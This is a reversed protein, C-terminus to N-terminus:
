DEDGKYILDLIEKFNPNDIVAKADERNNFIPILGRVVISSTYDQIFYELNRKDFNICYIKKEEKSNKRNYYEAINLLQNLAFLRELQKRNTTNNKDLKAGSSSIWFIKGKIDSTFMNKSFLEEAVDEYTLEKKIPKFKICEFTSNEKDMEYGEPINIKIEKTEMNNNIKPKNIVQDFMELTYNYSDEIISYVKLTANYQKITVGGCHEMGEVFYQRGYKTGEKLDERMKVKTGPPLLPLEKFCTNIGILFFCSMGELCTKKLRDKNYCCDICSDGECVQLIKGDNHNIFIDGVKYKTM